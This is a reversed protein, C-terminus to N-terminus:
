EICIINEIFVIYMEYINYKKYRHPPSIHICFLLCGVNSLPHRYVSLRFVSGKIM